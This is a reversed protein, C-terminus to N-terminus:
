VDTHPKRSKKGFSLFKNVSLKKSAKPLQKQPDLFAHHPTERPGVSPALVAVKFESTTQPPFGSAALKKGIEDM